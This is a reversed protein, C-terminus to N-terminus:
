GLLEDGRNPTLFFDSRWYFLTAVFCFTFGLSPTVHVTIHDPVRRMSLTGFRFDRDLLFPGEEYEPPGSSLKRGAPLYWSLSKVHYKQLGKQRIALNIGRTWGFWGIIQLWMIEAVSLNIFSTSEGGDPNFSCPLCQKREDSVDTVVPSEPALYWLNGCHSVWIWSWKWRRRVILLRAQPISLRDQFCIYLVVHVVCM